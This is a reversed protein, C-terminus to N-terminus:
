IMYCQFTLTSARRYGLVDSLEITIFMLTFFSLLCITPMTLLTVLYLCYMCRLHLVPTLVFVLLLLLLLMFFPCRLSVFVRSVYIIPFENVPCVNTSSLVCNDLSSLNQEKKKKQPPRLTMLPIIYYILGACDHCCTRRLLDMTVLYLFHSLLFLFRSM